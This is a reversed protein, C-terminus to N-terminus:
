QKKVEEKAKDAKEAAEAAAKDDEEEDDGNEADEILKEIKAVIEEIEAKSKAAMAKQEHAETIAKDTNSSYTKANEHKDAAM